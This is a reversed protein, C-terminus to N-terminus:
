SRRWGDRPFDAAGRAPHQQLTVGGVQRDNRVISRALHLLTSAKAECQLLQCSSAAQARTGALLCLSADGAHAVTELHNFAIGLKVIGQVLLMRMMLVVSSEIITQGSEDSTHKRHQRSVPLTEVGVGRPVM